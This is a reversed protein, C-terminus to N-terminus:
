MPHLRFHGGLTSTLQVSREWLRDKHELATFVFYIRASQVHFSLAWAAGLGGWAKMVSRICDDLPKRQLHQYLIVSRRHDFFQEIEDLFAYKLCRKSSKTVSSPALGNDPDLFLLEADRMAAACDQAWCERALRAARWDPVHAPIPLPASHFLTSRPVVNAQELQAVSREGNQVIGMLKDHLVPAISRVRAYATFKGDRNGEETTNLYWVIGARLDEGALANLLVFKSFDGVDGAYRNQM